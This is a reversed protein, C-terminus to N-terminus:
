GKSNNTYGAFMTNKALVAQANEPKSMIKTVKVKGSTELQGSNADTHKLDAPMLRNFHGGGPRVIAHYDIWKTLANSMAITEPHVGETLKALGQVQGYPSTLQILDDNEIGRAAATKPHILLGM